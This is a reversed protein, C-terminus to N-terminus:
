GRQGSGCCRLALPLRCFPIPLILPHLSSPTRSRPTRAVRILASTICSTCLVCTSPCYLLWASVVLSTTADIIAHCGGADANAVVHPSHVAPAPGRVREAGRPTHTSTRGDKHRCRTHLPLVLGRGEQAHGVWGGREGVRRVESAAATSERTRTGEAATREGRQRGGVGRGGFGRNLRAQPTGRGTGM